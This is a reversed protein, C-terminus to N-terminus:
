DWILLKRSGISLLSSPYKDTQVSHFISGGDDLGYVTVKSIPLCIVKGHKDTDNVSPLVIVLIHFGVVVVVVKLFLGTAQEKETATEV